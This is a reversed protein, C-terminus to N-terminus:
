RLGVTEQRLSSHASDVELIETEGDDLPSRQRKSPAMSGKVATQKSAENREDCLYVRQLRALPGGPNTM